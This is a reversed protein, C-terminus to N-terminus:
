AMTPVMITSKRKGFRGMRDVRRRRPMTPGVMTGRGASCSRLAVEATFSLASIADLRPAMDIEKLYEEDVLPSTM